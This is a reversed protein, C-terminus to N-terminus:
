RPVPPRRAQLRKRAEPIAAAYQPLWQAQAVLMEDTLQSIEAPTCVASVLPDMLMAQNLLMVDGRLAAEVALRQVAINSNCIAACGMPLDGVPPISVGNRDVYGPVEVVCDAPLNGICGDNIVNFHGRYVRGTELGEIIYSCHEESRNAPSFVPPVEKM